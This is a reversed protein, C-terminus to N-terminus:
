SVGAPESRPASWSRCQRRRLLEHIACLYRQAQHEWAIFDRVRGQGIRGMHQRQDPNALLEDILRAMAAVDRKPAYWAADDALRVTEDTRFAVVPLGVALYEMVKVPSVYDETGPELGIDATRLWDFVHDQEAWGPFSVWGAIGLSAALARAAPLGEGAGIFAFSCDTRHRERVLYAIARLALDLRDQPGILGVWCCLHRRGQRLEPRPRHRFAPAAPPGNGVQVIRADDVGDRQRAIGRMSQNVVVVRDAARMSCREFLLLARYVTGGSRGYRAAYTEPSPDRFDFVVPRGLRRCPAALPFYIDPMSATQLVDFGDRLLVWTTLVAAVALSYAYEWAFALLGSGEPPSPYGLIRAGPVYAANRRDARCIVTVECGAALLTNAQKCIRSDRAPPENEILMLVRPRRGHRGPRQLRREQPVKQRSM